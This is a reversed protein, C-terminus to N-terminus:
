LSELELDREVKEDFLRLELVMNVFLFNLWICVYINISLFSFCSSWLMSCLDLRVYIGFKVSLTGRRGLRFFHHMGLMHCWKLKGLNAKTAKIKAEVVRTENFNFVKKVIPLKECKKKFKKLPSEVTQDNPQSRNLQGKSSTHTGEEM